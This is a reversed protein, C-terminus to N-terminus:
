RPHPRTRGSNAQVISWRRTPYHLVFLKNSVEVRRHTFTIGGYVYFSQMVSNYVTSHGYIGSLPSYGRTPWPKLTQGKLILYNIFFTQSNEFALKEFALKEFTLKAFALKKFALKKLALKNFTLKEFALKECALERL